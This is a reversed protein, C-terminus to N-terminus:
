RRVSIVRTGSLSDHWGSGTSGFLVSFHDLPIFRAATRALVQLFGPKGGDIRVVRTGTILKGITWGFLAEFFIYYAAMVGLGLLRGGLRPVADPRGTAWVAAFGIVFGAIWAFGYVLAYDILMNLFRAGLSAGILPVAAAIGPPALDVDAQPPEYPNQDSM